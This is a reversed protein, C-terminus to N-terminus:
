CRMTATGRELGWCLVVMPRGCCMIPRREPMFAPATQTVARFEGLDDAREKLADSGSLMEDSNGEQRGDSKHEDKTALRSRSRKLAEDRKAELRGRLREAM